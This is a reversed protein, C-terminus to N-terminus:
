PGAIAVMSAVNSTIRLQVLPESRVDRFSHDPLHERGRDVKDHMEVPAGVWGGKPDNRQAMNTGHCGDPLGVDLRFM